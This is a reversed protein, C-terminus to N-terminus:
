RAKVDYPLQRFTVGASALRAAGLKSAEGYVIKPGDHPFRQQITALVNGTLVNGSAPRRDGLVGNFLLYIARGDHVGLKPTRWPGRAASGTEQMWIFGALTAFRVSRHIGGDADFMPEGLRVFRFGGGGKWDVAESIGGQEGAVVKELRPLCHTVAHEGM